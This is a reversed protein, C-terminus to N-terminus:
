FPNTDSKTAIQHSQSDYVHWWYMHPMDAYDSSKNSVDSIAEEPSDYSGRFDNMGGEAYAVSGAFLWYRKTTDAEIPATPSTMAKLLKRLYDREQRAAESYDGELVALRKEITAKDNQSTAKGEIKPDPFSIRM